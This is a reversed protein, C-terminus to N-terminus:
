LQDPLLFMTEDPIFWGRSQLEGFPSNVYDPVYNESNTASGFWFFGNGDTTGCLPDVESSKLTRGSVKKMILTLAITTRPGQYFRIRLPVETKNDLYFGLSACQLRPSHYGDNEIITELGKKGDLDMNLLSGDDSLIGLTYYGAKQQGVTLKGSVDIAFAEILKKGHRDMLFEGPTIEFGATFPMSPVSIQPMLINYDATFGRQILVNVSNLSQANFPIEDDNKDFLSHPRVLGDTKDLLYYIKGILGKNKSLCGQDGDSDTSFVLCPIDGFREEVTPITSFRVQSETLSDCNQFLLSLGIVATLRYISFM